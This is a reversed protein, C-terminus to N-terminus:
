RCLPYAPLFSYLGEIETITTNGDGSIGYMMAKPHFAKKLMEVNGTHVGETYLTVADRIAQLETNRENM